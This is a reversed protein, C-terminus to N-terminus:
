VIECGARVFHHRVNPFANKDDHARRTSPNGYSRNLVIRRESPEDGDRMQVLAGRELERLWVGPARAFQRAASASKRKLSLYINDYDIFVASLVPRVRQRDM